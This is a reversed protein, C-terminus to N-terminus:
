MFSSQHNRFQDSIHCGYRSLHPKHTHCRMIQPFHIRCQSSTPKFAFATAVALQPMPLNKTQYDLSLPSLSICSLTDLFTNEFDGSFTVNSWLGSSHKKCNCGFRIFDRTAPVTQQEWSIKCRQSLVLCCRYLPFHLIYTVFTSNVHRLLRILHLDDWKEEENHNSSVEM